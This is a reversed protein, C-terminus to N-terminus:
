WNRLPRRRKKIPGSIDEVNNHSLLQSYKTDSRGGEVNIANDILKKHEDTEFYDIKNMDIEGEISKNNIINYCLEPPKTLSKVFLTLRELRPTYSNALM